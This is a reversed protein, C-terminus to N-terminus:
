DLNDSYAWQDALVEMEVKLIGPVGVFITLTGDDNLRAREDPIPPIETGAEEMQALVVAVRSAMEQWATFVQPSLSVLTLDIERAMVIGGRKERTKVSVSVAVKLLRLIPLFM